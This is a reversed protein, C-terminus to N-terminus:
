QNAHQAKFRAIENVIKRALIEGFFEKQCLSNLQAIDEPAPTISNNTQSYMIATNNAVHDMGLAHGLEHALTHVLETKGNNFYITITSDVGSYLGEEPKSKIATNFTQVTQNLQGVQANYEDASINLEKALTNLQKAEAQLSQQETVLKQYEDEPAGGKSNWYDIDSNLKSLRTKFDASLSKYQAEKPDLSNKEQDLKQGLDNITNSLTQRSDYVMSITLEGDANEEFLDKHEQQDWIYAAEKIDNSFDQRSINFRQDIDGIKYTIPTDCPSVFILNAIQARFFYAAAAFVILILLNRM